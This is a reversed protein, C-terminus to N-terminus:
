YQYTLSVKVNRGPETYSALPAAGRANSRPVDLANWYTKDFVNFVGAQVRLGKVQEPQWWATLDLVGYGPAQFDAQPMEPVPDPYEVQSRRAAGTFLAEAGWQTTKYGLGAVFKLPAVSNLARGTDQDRGRAWALGGWTYWRDMLAANVVLEAGYIRVNARNAFGTVGMPYQGAWAPNWEPSAPGIVVEREIFDRYRNDFFALRGGLTENGTEVGFEWGRSVEAKLDPNGVRLYTGPAGYNMYLETPTPAKYGYGYLAYVRTQSTAQWAARLSPSARHGSNTNMSVNGANVNELYNGSADPAYRYADLRLAPTLSYRGADWSFTNQAWFAWQRGKVNPVDAQNTHLLDCSRPGFPAPLGPRVVPCNDVGSSRQRTESGYWDAGAQWYSDVVASNLYGAWETQAGFGTQKVSNDRGYLGNPFGYRFPDGPVIRARSDISRRGSQDSSVLSRQWYVRVNGADIAQKEATSRYDYGFVVRDRESTEDVGNQGQLYSTGAGQERLNDLSDTRRFIEASFLARHEPSFDHQVKLMANRQTYSLPDPEDRLAGYGGIAGQNRTEHGRRQGLQVLWKTSETALTGALAADLYSSTDVSDYGTRALAGFSQGPLLLDDPSLTRVDLYGTLAGSQSAGAAGVLDISSLANFDITSLGGQEGRAGDDLWPIRIGDVRVVVRDKDVGRVNISNSQRNFTVGPNGRKGFDEWNSISREQLQERMLVTSGEPLETALAAGQVTVTSLRPVVPHTASPIAPPEANAQTVTLALLVGTWTTRSAHM